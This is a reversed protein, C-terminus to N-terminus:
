AVKWSRMKARKPDVSLQKMKGDLWKLTKTWSAWITRGTFLGRGVRFKAGDKDLAAVVRKGQRDTLTEMWAYDRAISVFGRQLYSWESMAGRFLGAVNAM